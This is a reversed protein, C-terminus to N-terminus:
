GHFPGKIGLTVGLYDKIKIVVGFYDKINVSNNQTPM